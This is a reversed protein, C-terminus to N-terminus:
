KVEKGDRMIVRVKGHQQKIEENKEAFRVSDELRNFYTGYRKPADRIVDMLREDDFKMTSAKRRLKHRYM